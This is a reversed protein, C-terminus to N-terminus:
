PEKLNQPKSIPKPLAKKDIKGNPTVPMKELQIFVDPVMYHALSGSAYDTLEEADIQRDAMFYCCLYKNDVPVTISTIVGDFSNIVEEIEGLEIRLGRLKIQNDIRGFFEIEEKGNIRALDGTKYAREGNLNIFAAETKEPLNIYGRGVGLGAIVLEGTEGDPLVKNDKDVIYVKVNGNPEGITINDSDTIVKMTCSITTETPGYGNMIYADPNVARIKAYLAPPFAEAGVDFVKIQSVAERLQPLDIMNSLYTPTTTMIDVNQEVILNGLMLPNQIEEDSAIVATMGNTFPLFEELVSVDFTMAAMSLSVSGRSVYGYTEANKPNPNVFNALNIHEIMVGKPKGTSGSTYICYCLDHEGIQVNPNETNGHELLEELLLITCPLKGFLEQREEAIAKTTIIFPAGSDEFIFQVRDDPYDPAAVAFAGGSKLIGQRVAYFDCCRELVVGVIVERGVGKEILSNAIKNARENLQSYTFSEKSTAVVCKDPHLRVQEEFLKTVPQFEFVFNNKENIASM